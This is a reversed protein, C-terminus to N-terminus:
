DVEVAEVDPVAGYKGLLYAKRINDNTRIPLDTLNYLESEGNKRDKDAFYVQDKRLIEMSLLETDHTTFILQAQGPNTEPSQFKSVVYEALLPHLDRDLEDVLLVGGTKLVREVGPALAMLRRTGDSEDALDLAYLKGTGNQSIGRHMSAAKLEGVKLKIEASDSSDRLAAMFDQLASKLTEPLNGPMPELQKVEKDSFEFTMDEIGVDAEKAYAVIAQLMNPDEAYELLQRPIDVYDKSFYVAERFWQMAAICPQYNMICAIAFFLQNPGAAECIMEKKKKENNAPFFFDQGNREFIVSRQGKPSAYLYESVIMKQTASFGYVYKIGNFLYSYEFGTPEQASEENLAFPRVPILAKEHQTKQANRIFQVGLWFARIMNSKGGGNKGFIAAAPLVGSKKYPILCKRYETNGRAEMSLEVKKRFSRYNYFQFDLLM